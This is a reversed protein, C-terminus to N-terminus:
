RTTSRSRSTRWTRSSRAHRTRGLGPRHVRGDLPDAPRAERPSSKGELRAVLDDPLRIRELTSALVFEGPHLIFPGSTTSRSSSLSSRRRSRSTSSRTARTTSSASTATSAFTSAPRSSCPGRRVPRDRDSGADILRRITRDFLPGARSDRAPQTSSDASSPTPSSWRLRGSTRRSTRSPRPARSRPSRPHGDCSGRSRLRLKLGPGM